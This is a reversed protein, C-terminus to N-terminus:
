VKESFDISAQLFDIVSNTHSSLLKIVKKVEDSLDFRSLISSYHKVTLLPAKVDQMLFNAIQTLGTSNIVKPKETAITKENLKARFDKFM